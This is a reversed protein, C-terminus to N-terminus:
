LHFVSELGLGFKGISPAESGKESLGLQHLGKAHRQEFPGNNRVFLAPCRSLLPHGALPLSQTWGLDLTTAAADDANQVLEKLVAFGDRYRDELNQRILNIDALPSHDFGSM